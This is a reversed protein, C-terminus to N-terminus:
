VGTFCFTLFIGFSGSIEANGSINQSFLCLFLKLTTVHGVRCMNHMITEAHRGRATVLALLRGHSSFYQLSMLRCVVRELVTDPRLTLALFFQQLVDDPVVTLVEGFSKLLRSIVADPARALEYFKRCRYACTSM